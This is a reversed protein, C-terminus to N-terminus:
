SEHEHKKGKCAPCPRSMPATHPENAYVKEQVIVQGTGLCEGCVEEVDCAQSCGECEYSVDDIIVHRVVEEGCCKSVLTTNM